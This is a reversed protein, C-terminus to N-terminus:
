KSVNRSCQRGTQFAPARRVRFFARLFFGRTRCTFCLIACGFGRTLVKKRFFGAKEIRKGRLSGQALPATAARRVCAGHSLPQGARGTGSLSGQALPATKTRRVCAGLSLPQGALGTGRLSGQALPATQRWASQPAKKRKPEGAQSLFLSSHFTLAPPFPAIFADRGARANRERRLPRRGRRGSAERGSPPTRRRTVGAPPRLSNRGEVRPAIGSDVSSCGRM